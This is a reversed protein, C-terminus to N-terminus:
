SAANRTSVRALDTKFVYPGGEGRKQGGVEGRKQDPIESRGENEGPYGGKKLCYPYKLKETAAILNLSIALSLYFM